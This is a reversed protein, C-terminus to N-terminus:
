DFKKDIIWGTVRRLCATVELVAYVRVVGCFVGVVSIVWAAEKVWLLWM